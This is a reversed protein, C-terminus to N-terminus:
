RYPPTGEARVERPPQALRALGRALLVFLGIEIPMQVVTVIVSTRLMSEIGDRAAVFSAVTTAGRWLVQVGIVALAWALLPKYADPRHRRVVSAIVWVIAIEGGFTVLAELGTTISILNQWERTSDM